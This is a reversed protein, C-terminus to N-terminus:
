NCTVYNPNIEVCTVPKGNLMYTTTKSPQPAMLAAGAASLSRALNELRQQELLRDLDETTVTSTHAPRSASQQERAQNFAAYIRLIEARYESEVRNLGANGEHRRVSAISAQDARRAADVLAADQQHWLDDPTVGNSLAVLNLERVYCEWYALRPTQEHAAFKRQAEAACRADAADRDADMKTFDIQNARTQAILGLTLLGAVWALKM